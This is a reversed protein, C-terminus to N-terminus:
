SASSPGLPGLATLTVLSYSGGRWRRFNTGTVPRGRAAKARREPGSIQARLQARPGPRLQQRWVTNLAGILRFRRRAAPTAAASHATMRGARASAWTSSSPSVVFLGSTAGVQGALTCGDWHVIM